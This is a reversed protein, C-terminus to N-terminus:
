GCSRAVALARVALAGGALLAAAAADLTAGTTLVDDVVLVHAPLAIGRVPALSGSANAIRERRSLSRQDRRPACVLADLAPVCLIAGIECALRATHDTGRRARAGPSPPVPAIADAWESWDAVVDVALSALLPALRHEPADKHLRVARSLPPEFVGACRVAQFAFTSGACEGCWRVGGPAGCRICAIAPDILRLAARCQECLLSGPRDCGACRTPAALEAASAALLRVARALPLVRDRVRAPACPSPPESMSV